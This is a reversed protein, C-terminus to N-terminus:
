LEGTMSLSNSHPGSCTVAVAVRCLCALSLDRFLYRFGSRFYRSLLSACVCAPQGLNAIMRFQRTGPPMSSVRYRYSLMRIHGSVLDFANFSRLLAGVTM